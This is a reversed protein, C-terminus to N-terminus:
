LVTYELNCNIFGAACFPTGPLLYNHMVLSYYLRRIFAVPRVMWCSFIKTQVSTITMIVMHLIM